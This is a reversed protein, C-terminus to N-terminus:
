ALKSNELNKSSYFSNGLKPFESEFHTFYKSCGQQFIYLSVTNIGTAALISM